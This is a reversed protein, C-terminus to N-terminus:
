REAGPEGAGPGASEGSDREGAAPGGPEAPDRERTRDVVIVLALIGLTIAADAINFPPWGLPLKVFDTVSGGRIRDIVNGIAGGILMGTPLWILPRDLHRAFYVLLVLLAVAILITVGVHSGPLFGFAVGRNRTNVLEVGPLFRHEEGPTIGNRVLSKTLQDLAVVLLAV